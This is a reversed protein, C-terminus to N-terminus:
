NYKFFYLSDQLIEIISWESLLLLHNEIVNNKIILRNIAIQTLCLM